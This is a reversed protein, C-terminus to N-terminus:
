AVLVRRQLGLDAAVASETKGDLPQGGEVIEDGARAAGMGEELQRPLWGDIQEIQLRLRLIKDDLVVLALRDLRGGAALPHREVRAAHDREINGQGRQRSRRFLDTEQLAANG